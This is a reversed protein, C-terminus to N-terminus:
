FPNEDKNVKKFEKVEIDTTYVKSGDQKIYSGYKIKAEVYVCDGKKFKGAFWEAKKDWLKLKHWETINQWEGNKDKYSDTTALSAMCYVGKSSNVIEPDAGLNGILTVKNISIM